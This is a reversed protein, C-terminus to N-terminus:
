NVPTQAVAPRDYYGIGHGIQAFNLESFNGFPRYLKLLPFGERQWQEFDDYASLSLGPVARGAEVFEEMAAVLHGALPHARARHLGRRAFDWFPSDWRSGCAYHWAIFLSDCCIASVIPRNSAEIAGPDTRGDQGHEEIWRAASRIQLIAHGIATAELPELFGAANGCHFVRGDFIRRRLFNPFDIRGRDEWTEVGEGRLFDTFDAAVDADGSICGNF